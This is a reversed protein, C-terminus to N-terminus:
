LRGALWFTRMEGKGKIAVPSRPILRYRGRLAEEVRASTQILGPEGHSEMRSAINVTDGWADYTFKDRGIVGAMVPGTDIGIRLNLPLAHNGSLEAFSERMKLALEAVRGCHDPLPEPLGGVAMYADGITKIKEVGLEKALRDFLSFAGDLLSIIEADCLTEFLRTFGVLDAFLVTAEQTTDVLPNEGNKLREAIPLPLINALLADSKEHAARLEQLMVFRQDLLHKRMLSSQVRVNMLLSNCPKPLYDDAGLELCRIVENLQHTASIMIVPLGSLAPDGKMRRLVEDGHLGPMVLDLLVLDFRESTCLALAAEGTAAHAVEHGESELRRSLIDRNHENDDVVLIRGLIRSRSVSPPEAHRQPSRLAAEVFSRIQRPLNQLQTLRETFGRKGLQEDLCQIWQESAASLKALDTHWHSGRDELPDRRLSRSMEAIRLAPERLQRLLDALDSSAPIEDLDPPLLKDLLKHLRGATVLISRLPQQIRGPLAKGGGELIMESYGLINYLPTLLEHRLEPLDNAM